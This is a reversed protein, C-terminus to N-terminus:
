LRFGAGARGDGNANVTSWTSAPSLRWPTAVLVKRRAGPIVNEESAAEGAASWPKMRVELATNAAVEACDVASALVTLANGGNKIWARDVSSRRVRKETVVLGSISSSRGAARCSLGASCCVTMRAGSSRSRILLRPGSVWAEFAPIGAKLRKRTAIVGHSLRTFGYRPPSIGIM